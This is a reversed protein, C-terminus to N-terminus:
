PVTAFMRRASRWREGLDVAWGVEWLEDVAVEMEADAMDTGTKRGEGAIQGQRGQLNLRSEERDVQTRTELYAMHLEVLSTGAM